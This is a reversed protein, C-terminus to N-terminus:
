EVNQVQERLKEITAKLEVAVRTIEIASAKSSVTNTERHLEQTLFDLKRGVPKSGELITYFEKTHLKLRDIEETIDAKEALLAVEWELRSNEIPATLNWTALKQTLKEKVKEPHLPALTSLKEVAKEIDKLGDGLVTKLRKGESQRMKGLETITKEFLAKFPNWLTTLDAGEDVAVFVRNTMALMELSPVKPTKYKGALWECGDLLSKAAVEDVVFRTGFSSHNQTADIRQKVNVEFSGREFHQKLTETLAFEFSSLTQPMRFRVDLFRHNVSKIEVTFSYSGITAESRGFGTMSNM